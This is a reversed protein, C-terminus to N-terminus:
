MVHSLVVQLELKLSDLVKQAEFVANVYVFVCM